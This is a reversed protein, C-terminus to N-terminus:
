RGGPSSSLVPSVPQGAAATVFRAAAGLVDDV